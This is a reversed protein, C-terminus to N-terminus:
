PSQKSGTISWDYTCPDGINPVWEHVYTGEFNAESTLTVDITHTNTIASGMSFPASEIHEAQMTLQAGTFTGAFELTVAWGPPELTATATNDETVALELTQADFQREIGCFEKTSPTAVLLWPGNPDFDMPEVADAPTAIDVQAATDATAEVTDVQAATDATAEVTDVQAATDATAEVTDTEEVTDTTTVTDTQIATDPELGRETDQAPTVGSDEPATSLADEAAVNELVDPMSTETSDGETVSSDEASGSCAWLSLGCVLLTVIIRTKM